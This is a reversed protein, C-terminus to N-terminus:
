LNKLMKIGEIVLQLERDTPKEVVPYQLYKLPNYPNLINLWLVIAVIGGYLIGRGIGLYDICSIIGTLVIVFILFSGAYVTGCEKHYYSIKKVEELDYVDKNNVYSLIMHESAHYKKYQIFDEETKYENVWLFSLVLIPFFSAIGFFLSAIIVYSSKMTFFIILFQILLVFLVIFMICDHTQSEKKLHCVLQKHQQHLDKYNGQIIKMEDKDYYCLVGNDDCLVTDYLLVGRANSYGGMM